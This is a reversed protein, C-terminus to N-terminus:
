YKLHPRKLKRIPINNKRLINLIHSFSCGMKNAITISGILCIGINCNYFHMLLIMVLAESIIALPFFLVSGKSMIVSFYTTIKLFGSKFTEFNFPDPLSVFLFYLLLGILPSLILGVIVRTMCVYKNLSSEENM